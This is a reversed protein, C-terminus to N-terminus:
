EKRRKERTARAAASVGPTAILGDVVRALRRRLDETDASPRTLRELEFGRVLDIITRAADIPRSVGIGELAEAVRAELYRVCSLFEKALLEDRAARLILEYEVPVMDANAFERRVVELAREVVDNPAAVPLERELHTIFEMLDRLYQRFAERMLDERSKFYYTISGLPVGAAQAVRRHTVADAGESAIIRLTAELIV